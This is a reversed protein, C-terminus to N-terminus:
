ASSVEAEAEDDLLLNVSRELAFHQLYFEREREGLERRLEAERLYKLALEVMEKTDHSQALPVILAERWVTETLPGTTTITPTANYLAAMLSTRRSSAGDPYPQIALDCAQLHLSVEERSLFGPALLRGELEPRAAVVEKVFREGRAGLCLGVAYPNAQLLETFVKALAPTMHEGYTGFHAVLLKGERGNNYRARVAAVAKSDDVRPITAPIPLWKLKTRRLWMFPCLMKEWAPISIYAVRSSALLMVAMLRQGLALLNRQPRQWAFYFFPEHFMVRVDDRRFFARWCLWWCFFINLGRLGYANPAYQVLLTRPQSFGDLLRGLRLLRGPFFDKGFRHVEIGATQSHLEETDSGPCWVHVRCGKGALGVALQETYDSVGGHQPPYEGTIIHWTTIM